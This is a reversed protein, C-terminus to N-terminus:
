STATTVTSPQEESVLGNESEGSAKKESSEPENVAKYATSWKVALEQNNALIAAQWTQFMAYDISYVNCGALVGDSITTVQLWKVFQRALNQQTLPVQKNDSLNQVNAIIDLLDLWMASYMEGDFISQQRLTYTAGDHEFSKTLM